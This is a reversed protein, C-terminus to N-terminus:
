IIIGDCHDIEHQIIQATFGSFKRKRKIFGEDLYEVNIERFRKVTRVGELSLCGEQTDFPLKKSCIVPNIMIMDIEGISVIIIRKFEGIMNAAMGVCEGSHAKLTDKLDTIVASDLKSAPESKRGLLLVNKNINRVM